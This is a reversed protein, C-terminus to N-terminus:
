FTMGIGNNLKVEGTVDPANKELSVYLLSMVKQDAAHSTKLDGVHLTVTHQQRNKDQEGCLPRVSQCHIFCISEHRWSKHEVNM